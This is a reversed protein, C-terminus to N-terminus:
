VLTLGTNVESRNLPSIEVGFNCLIEGTVEFNSYSVLIAIRSYASHWIIVVALM